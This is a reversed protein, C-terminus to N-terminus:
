CGYVTNQIMQSANEQKVAVKTTSTEAKRKCPMAAAMPSELNKRKNKLIEKYDQDDPNIFNKGRLRRGIDLKPKEKKLEQKERNQAAKGIKTYVEPLVHEPRTSTQVKTLREGRVM